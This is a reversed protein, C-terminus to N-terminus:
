VRSLSETCCLVIINSNAAKCLFTNKHTFSLILSSEIYHHMQFHKKFLLANNIREIHHHLKLQCLSRWDM